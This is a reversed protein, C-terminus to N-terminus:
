PQAAADLWFEADPRLRYLQDAPWAKAQSESKQMAQLIPKKAAGTCLYSIRKSQALSAMSLSVRVQGSSPHTALHCSEVPYEYGPFLSATHGDEGIGLIMWDFVPLGNQSPIQQLESAFQDCAAKPQLETRLVHIKAQTKALVLRLAEGANSQEDCLPVCREDGWWLHLHNWNIQSIWPEQALAMFWAKPTSGGSLAVHVNESSQSIKLLQQCLAQTLSATDEFSKLIM